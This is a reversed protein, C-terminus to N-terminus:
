LAHILWFIVNKIHIQVFFLMFFILFYYYFFFQLINKKSVLSYDSKNAKKILKEGYLMCWVYMRKYYYDDDDGQSGGGNINIHQEEENRVISGLSYPLLNLYILILIKFNSVLSKLLCGLARICGAGLSM